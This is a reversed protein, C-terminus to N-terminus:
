VRSGPTRTPIISVRAGCISYCWHSSINETNPISSKQKFNTIKTLNSHCFM